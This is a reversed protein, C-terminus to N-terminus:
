RAREVYWARTLLVEGNSIRRYNRIGEIRDGRLDGIFETELDDRESRDTTFVLENNRFSASYLTDPRGDARFTGTVSSNHHDLVLTIEADDFDLWDYYEFAVGVWTGTLDVSSAVDDDGCSTVLVFMAMLSALVVLTRM